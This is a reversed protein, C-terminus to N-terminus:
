LPRATVPAAGLSCAQVSFLWGGTAPGYAGAGGPILKLEAHPTLVAVLAPSARDSTRNGSTSSFGPVTCTVAM